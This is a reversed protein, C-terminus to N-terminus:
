AGSAGLEELIRRLHAFTADRDFGRYRERAAAIEAGHTALLARLRPQTDFAPFSSVAGSEALAGFEIAPPPSVVALANAFGAISGAVINDDGEDDYRELLASWLTAGAALDGREVLISAARSCSIMFYSRRWTTDLRMCEEAAALAGPPDSTSTAEALALLPYLRVIESGTARAIIMAEQAAQAGVVPDGMTNLMAVQATVFAREAPSSRTRSRDWSTAVLSLATDLTATSSSDSPMSTRPSDGAAENAQDLFSGFGIIDGRFFNRLAAFVCTSERHPAGHATRDLTLETAVAGLEQMLLPPWAFPDLFPLGAFFADLDEHREQDALWRV